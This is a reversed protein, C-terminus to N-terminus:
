SLPRVLAYLASTAAGLAVANADQRVVEIRPPTIGSPEYLGNFTERASDLFEHGSQFAPGGVFLRAPDFQMGLNHLLTGFHKGATRLERSLVPDGALAAARFESAPRGTADQVARLTALMNACGYKGCNCLPGRPDMTVHGIAGTMGRHGQILTYRSALAATVAHGVHVYLLPEEETRREYEFHYLAVCGVARQVLVPFAPIGAQQLREELMSRVPLNRWGTNDSYRLTGSESDVPGPVGIGMASIRCNAASLRQWISGTQRALIDLAVDAQDSHTPTVSMERIEGGLTTAICIVRQNNIDAGVLIRSADDIHLAVPRRGLAGTPGLREESLWGDTILEDVLNGITPRTLNLTDALRVRSIGANLRVTRLVALRNITRLFQQNGSIVM